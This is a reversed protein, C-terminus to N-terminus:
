VFVVDIVCIFPARVAQKMKDRAGGQAYRHRQRVPELRVAAETARVTESSSYDKEDAAVFLLRPSMRERVAQVADTQIFARV